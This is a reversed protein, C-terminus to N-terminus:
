FHISYFPIDLTGPGVIFYVDAYKATLALPACCEVLSIPSSVKTTSSSSEKPKGKGSKTDTSTSRKSDSGDKTGKEKKEKAAKEKRETTVTTLPVGGKTSPEHGHIERVHKWLRNRTSFKAVSGTKCERCSYVM